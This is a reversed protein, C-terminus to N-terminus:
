KLSICRKFKLVLNAFQAYEILNVQNRIDDSLLGQEVSLCYIHPYLDIMAQDLKLIADGMVVIYDEAQAIIRLEDWIKDTNHYYTQLLFLSSNNM